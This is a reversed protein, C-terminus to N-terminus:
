GGRVIHVIEVRDGPSVRTTEWTARPLVDANLAVAVGGRDPEIDIERLLEDLSQDRWDRPDGNVTIRDTM